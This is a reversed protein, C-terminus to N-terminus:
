KRGEKSFDNTFTHSPYEVKSHSGEFPLAEHYQNKVIHETNQSQKFLAYPTQAKDMNISSSLVPKLHQNNALGYREDVDGISKRIM